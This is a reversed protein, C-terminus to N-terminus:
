PGFRALWDELRAENAGFDSHGYVSRSYLCLTSAAPEVEHVEIQIIDPFRFVATRQVVVLRRAADDRVIPAVRPEALVADVWVQWLREAEVAHVRPERDVAATTLDAPCVLYTNPSSPRELTALDVMDPQGAGCATLLGVMALGLFVTRRNSSM